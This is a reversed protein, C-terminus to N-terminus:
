NLTDEVIKLVRDLGRTDMTQKGTRSMELRRKSDGCLRDIKEKTSKRDLDDRWGLSVTSKRKSWYNVNSIEHTETAVAASPIGMAALEYLTIGGACIVLDSKFFYEFLNKVSQIIQIRHHSNKVAAELRRSMKRGAGLNIKIFLKRELQNLIELLRESMFHTDTGGFSLLLHKAQKSIVKERRSFRGLETQLIMYQPGEYLRTQRNSTQYPKWQFAISNIVADAMALGTGRDDLNIIKTKTIKRLIKMASLSTQLTDQIILHPRLEAVVKKLVSEYSPESFFRCNLRTNKLIRNAIGNNKSVFIVHNNKDSLAQGLTKMRYVHGLGIEESGDVRILIRHRSM